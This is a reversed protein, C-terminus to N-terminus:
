DMELQQSRKFRYSNLNILHLVILSLAGGYSMAEAWPEHHFLSGIFLVAVSLWFFPKLIQMNLHRIAHIVAWIGIAIFGFQIFNYWWYHHLNMNSGFAMLIPVALCHLICLVSGWIGLKDYFHTHLKRM